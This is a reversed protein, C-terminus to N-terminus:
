SRSFVKRAFRVIEQNVETPREQQLWHGAEPVIRTAELNPVLQPMRSIIERMGPMGLGPDREGVMFLAPLTLQIGQFAALLQWNRDLNRYYNLGGRFGSQRYAAVFADLDAQQLWSPLQQPDPLAELLGRAPSVM